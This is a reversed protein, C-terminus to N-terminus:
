FTHTTHSLRYGNLTLLVSYYRRITPCDGELFSDSSCIYCEIEFKKYYYGWSEAYIKNQYHTEREM